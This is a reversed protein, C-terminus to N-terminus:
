PKLGVTKTGGITIDVLAVYEWRILVHHDGDVRNTKIWLGESDADLAYVYPSDEVGAFEGIHERKATENLYLGVIRQGVRM